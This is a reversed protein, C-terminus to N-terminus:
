LKVDKTEILKANRNKFHKMIRNHKKSNKFGLADKIVLVNFKEELLGEVTAKICFEAQLGMVYVNTIPHTQLYELLSINTLANGTSKSFINNNVIDLRRDIGVGKGGKKCVNKTFFNIFPNTWENIVYLIHNGTTEFERIVDNLNSLFQDMNSTDIHIFSSPNLLNEQIDIVLLANVSQISSTHDTSAM